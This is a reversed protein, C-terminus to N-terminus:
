RRRDRRRFPFRVVTPGSSWSHHTAAGGRTALQTISVSRQRGRGRSLSIAFSLNATFDRILSELSIAILDCDTGALDRRGRRSIELGGQPEQKRRTMKEPIAVGKGVYDNGGLSKETAPSRGAAPSRGRRDVGSVPLGGGAERGAM